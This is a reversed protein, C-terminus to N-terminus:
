AGELTHLLIRRHTTILGSDNLQSCQYYGSHATTVSKILLSSDPKVKFSQIKRNALATVEDEQTQTILAKEGVSWQFIEEAGLLALDTCPLTVSRGVVAFVEEVGDALSLSLYWQYLM